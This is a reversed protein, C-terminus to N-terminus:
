FDKGITISITKNTQIIGGLTVGSLLSIVRDYGITGVPGYKVAINPDSSDSNNVLGTMGYGLGLKLRNKRVLVYKKIEVSKVLKEQVIVKPQRAELAAVQQKLQENEAKLKALELDCKTARRVVIHTDTSYTKCDEGVCKKIYDPHLKCEQAQASLSLALLSTLLLLKM